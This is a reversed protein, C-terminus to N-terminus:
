RLGYEPVTRSRVHHLLGSANTLFGSLFVEYAEISDDMRTDMAGIGNAQLAEALYVSDLNGDDLRGDRVLARFCDMKLSAGSLRSVISLPVRTVYEHVLSGRDTLCITPPTRTYFRSRNFVPDFRALTKHFLRTGAPLISRCESALLYCFSPATLAPILQMSADLFVHGNRRLAPLYPVPCPDGDRVVIIEIDTRTTLYALLRQHGELVFLQNRAM